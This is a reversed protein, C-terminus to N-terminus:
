HLRDRKNMGTGAILSGLSSGNSWMVIRHNYVDAIYINDNADIQIARPSNLHTLSSGTAGNSQGAM